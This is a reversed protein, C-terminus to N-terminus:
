LMSKETTNTESTLGGTALMKARWYNATLHADRSTAVVEKYCLEKKEDNTSALLCNNLDTM